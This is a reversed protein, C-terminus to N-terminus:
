ADEEYKEKLIDSMTHIERAQVYFMRSLKFLMITKRVPGKILNRITEHIELQV